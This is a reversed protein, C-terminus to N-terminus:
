QAMRNYTTQLIVSAGAGLGTGLASIRYPILESFESASSQDIAGGDQPLFATLEEIMFYPANEIGLLEVDSQRSVGVFGSDDLFIVADQPPQVYRLYCSEKGMCTPPSVAKRVDILIEGSVLGSEAAQFAMNRDRMNGAMAEQLNSSRIASLAIISILLVMVLGMILIAGSEPHRNINPPSNKM